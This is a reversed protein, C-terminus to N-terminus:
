LPSESVSSERTCLCVAPVVELTRILNISSLYVARYRSLNLSLNFFWVLFGLVSALTFARQKCLEM